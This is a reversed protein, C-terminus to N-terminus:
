INAVSKNNKKLNVGLYFICILWTQGMTKWKIDGSRVGNHIYLAIGTSMTSLTKTMHFMIQPLFYLNLKHFGTGSKVICIHCIKPFYSSVYWYGFESINQLSIM